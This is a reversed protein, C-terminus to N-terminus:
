ESDEPEDPLVEYEADVTRTRETEECKDVYKLAEELPISNVNMSVNVDSLGKFVKIANMGKNFWDYLDDMSAKSKDANMIRKLNDMVDVLAMTEAKEMADNKNKGVAMMNLKLQKDSPLLDRLEENGM